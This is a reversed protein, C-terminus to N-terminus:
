WHVGQVRMQAPGRGHRSVRLAALRAAIREFKDLYFAEQESNDELAGYALSKAYEVIGRRFEIPLVSPEDDDEVLVAPRYVYRLLAELGDSAPTPHVGIVENGEDDHDTWYVGTGPPLWRRDVTLEDGDEEDTATYTRGSITLTLGRHYDSPVAYTAQDAVTPGIDAKKRTWEARVCLEVYGENLLEDRETDETGLGALDFDARLADFDTLM